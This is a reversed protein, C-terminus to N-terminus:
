SKGTPLEGSLSCRLIKRIYHRCDHLDLSNIIYQETSIVTPPVIGSTNTHLYWIQFFIINPVTEYFIQSAEFNAILLFDMIKIWDQGFKAWNVIENM